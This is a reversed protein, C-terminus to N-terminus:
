GTSSVSLRHHPMKWTDAYIGYKGFYIAHPDGHTIRLVRDFLRQKKVLSALGAHLTDDDDAGIADYAPDVLEFRRRLAQDRNLWDGTDYLLLKRLM